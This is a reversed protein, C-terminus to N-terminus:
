INEFFYRFYHALDRSKKIVDDNKNTNEHTMLMNLQIKPNKIVLCQLYTVFLSHKRNKTQFARKFRWFQSFELIM